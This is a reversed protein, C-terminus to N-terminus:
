KKGSELEAIKRNVADLTDGLTSAHIRLASLEDAQIETAFNGRQRRHLQLGMGCTGRGRGGDFGNGRQAATNMNGPKDNGACFGARRGTMPGFGSPGTGDGRPM